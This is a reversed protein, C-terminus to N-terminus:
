GNCQVHVGANLDCDICFFLHKVNFRHVIVCFFNDAVHVKFAAIQINGHVCKDARHQAAAIQAFDCVGDKDANVAAIRCLAFGKLLSNRSFDLRNQILVAATRNQALGHAVICLKLLKRRFVSDGEAFRFQNLLDRACARQIGKFGKNGKGDVVQVQKHVGAFKVKASNVAAASGCAACIDAFFRCLANCEFMRANGFAFDCPILAFHVILVASHNVINLEAAAVARVATIDFIVVMDIGFVTLNQLIVKFVIIVMMCGGRGAAFVDCTFLRDCESKLACTKCAILYRVQFSFKFGFVANRQVFNFEICVAIFVFDFNICRVAAYQLKVPIIVIVVVVATMVIVVVVATM